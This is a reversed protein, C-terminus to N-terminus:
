YLKWIFNTAKKVRCDVFIKILRAQPPWQMIFAAKVQMGLYRLFFNCCVRLPFLGLDWQEEEYLHLLFVSSLISMNCEHKVKLFTQSLVKSAPLTIYPNQIEDIDCYHSWQMCCGASLGKMVTSILMASLFFWERVQSVLSKAFVHCM